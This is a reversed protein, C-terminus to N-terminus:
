IFFGILVSVYQKPCKRIRFVMIAGYDQAESNWKISEVKVGFSKYGTLTEGPIEISVPIIIEGGPPLQVTTDTWNFWGLDPRITKHYRM